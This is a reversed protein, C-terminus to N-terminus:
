CGEAALAQLRAFSAMFDPSMLRLAIDPRLKAFDYGSAEFGAKLDALVTGLTAVDPAAATTAVSASQAVAPAAEELLPRLVAPDTLSISIRRVKDTYSRLLDCFAKTPTASPATTTTAKPAAGAIPQTTTSTAAAAAVAVAGRTPSWPHASLALGLALSGLATALMIRRTMQARMGGSKPHAIDREPPVYRRIRTGM